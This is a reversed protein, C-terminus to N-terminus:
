EKMKNLEKILSYCDKWSDRNFPIEYNQTKGYAKFKVDETSFIEKLTEIPMNFFCREDVGGGMIAERSCEGLKYHFIEDGIKIEVKELFALNTSSFYYVWIIYNGDLYIIPSIRMGTLGMGWGYDVSKLESKKHSYRSKSPNIDDYIFNFNSYLPNNGHKIKLSDPQASTSYIIFLFSFTLLNKM